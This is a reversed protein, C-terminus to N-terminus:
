YYSGSMSSKLIFSIAEGLIECEKIKKLWISKNNIEIDWIAARLIRLVQILTEKDDSSILSLIISVLEDANGLIELSKATCCM